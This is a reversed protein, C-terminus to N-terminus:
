RLKRVGELLYFDEMSSLWYLEEAVVMAEQRVKGTGHGQDSLEVQDVRARKVFLAHRQEVMDSCGQDGKESGDDFVELL